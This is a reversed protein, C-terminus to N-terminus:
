KHNCLKNMPFIKSRMGNIKNKDSKRLKSTFVHNMQHVNHNNGKLRDEIKKRHKEFLLSENERRLNFGIIKNCYLLNLLKILFVVNVTLYIDSCSVLFHMRCVSTHIHIHKHTGGNYNSYSLFLFRPLGEPTKVFMICTFAHWCAHMWIYAYICM